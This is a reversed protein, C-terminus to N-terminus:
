GCGDVENVVAIWLIRQTIWLPHLIQHVVTTSGVTPQADPHRLPQAVDCAPTPRVDPGAHPAVSVSEGGPGLATKEAIKFEWAHGPV